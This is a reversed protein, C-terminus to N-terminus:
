KWSWVVGACFSGVASRLSKVDKKKKRIENEEEFRLYWLTSHSAYNIKKTPSRKMRESEWESRPCIYFYLVAIKVTLCHSACCFDSTENQVWHFGWVSDLLKKFSSRKVRGFGRSFGLVLWKTYGLSSYNQPRGAITFLQSTQAVFLILWSTSKSRDLICNQTRMQM